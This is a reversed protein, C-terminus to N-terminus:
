TIIKYICFSSQFYEEDIIKNVKQCLYTQGQFSKGNSYVGNNIIVPFDEKIRDDELDGTITDGVKFDSIHNKFLEETKQITIKM